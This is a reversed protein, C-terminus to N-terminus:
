FCINKSEVGRLKVVFTVVFNNVQTTTMGKKYIQIKLTLDFVSEEM